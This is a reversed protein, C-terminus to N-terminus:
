TNKLTNNIIFLASVLVDFSMLASVKTEAVDIWGLQFTAPSFGGLEKAPPFRCTATVGRLGRRRLCPVVEAPSTAPSAAM